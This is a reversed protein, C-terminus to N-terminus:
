VLNKHLITMKRDYIFEYLTYLNSYLVFLRLWVMVIVLDGWPCKVYRNSYLM